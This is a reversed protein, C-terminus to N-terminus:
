RVDITTLSPDQNEALTLSVGIGEGWLSGDSLWGTVQMLAAPDLDVKMPGKNRPLPLPLPAKATGSGTMTLDVGTEPLATPPFTLGITVNGRLGRADVATVTCEGTGGVTTM